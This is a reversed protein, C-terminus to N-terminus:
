GRATWPAFTSCRSRLPLAMVGWLTHKALVSLCVWNHGYLWEGDAPGPTPDLHVGAGEVQASFRRTPSDDGALTLRPWRASWPYRRGSPRGGTLIPPTWGGGSTSSRHAADERTSLKRADRIEKREVM